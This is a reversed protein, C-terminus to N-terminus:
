VLEIKGPIGVYLKQESSVSKWFSRELMAPYMAWHHDSSKRRRQQPDTLEFLGRSKLM